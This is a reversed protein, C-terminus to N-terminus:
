NETIRKARMRSRLDAMQRGSFRARTHYCLTHAPGPSRQDATPGRPANAQQGWRRNLDSTACTESKYDLATGAFFFRPNVWSTMRGKLLDCGGREMIQFGSDGRRGDRECCYLGREPLIKM